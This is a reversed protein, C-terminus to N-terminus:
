NGYGLRRMIAQEEQELTQPPADMPTIIGNRTDIHITQRGNTAFMEVDIDSDSANVVGHGMTAVLEQGFGACWRCIAGPGMYSELLVEGSPRAIRFMRIGPQDGVAWANIDFVRWAEAVVPLERPLLATPVTRLTLAGAGAGLLYLFGRRTWM